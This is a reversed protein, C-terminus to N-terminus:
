RILKSIVEQMQVEVQPIVEDRINRDVSKMHGLVLPVLKEKLQSEIVAPVV